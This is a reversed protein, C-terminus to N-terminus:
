NATAINNAVARILRVESATLEGFMLRINEPDMAAIKLARMRAANAADIPHTQTKESAASM